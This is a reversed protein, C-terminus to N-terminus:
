QLHLTFTALHPPLYMSPSAMFAGLEAVEGAAVAASTKQPNQIMKAFCFM